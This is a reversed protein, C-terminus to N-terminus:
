SSIGFSLYGKEVFCKLKVGTDPEMQIYSSLAVALKEFDITSEGQINGLPRSKRRNLRTEISDIAAQVSETAGEICQKYQNHKDRAFVPPHKEASRRFKSILLRLHQKAINQAKELDNQSVDKKFLISDLGAEMKSLSEMNFDIAKAENDKLRNFLAIEQEKTTVEITKEM